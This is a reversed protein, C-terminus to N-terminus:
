PHLYPYPTILHGIENYIKKIASCTLIKQGYLHGSENVVEGLCYGGCHEKVACVKCHPMNHIDRNRLASVKNTDIIFSKTKENWKGYVFCDMHGADKGFTVLDCASIYGDTTFHPVPTCARCHQTCTGDFNCTLFSGYFIDKTQAYKFADIYYDAYSNMDFNYEELKHKDQCVPIKRVSPFIPDNWIYRIGLSSLYDIISIQRSITENTITVRAGVMLQNPNANNILWRVNEEIIPSSDKNNACPRNHNQIDPEGDFSVWIINMNELLWKRINKNFCGNTQIETTVNNSKLKAYDVIQTLLDFEQTPEGPGYFRIHRSSNTSFFYDVGAKAIHLPLSQEQMKAREQSNYCYVCRLNCKTTLFFSAMQKNIHPM